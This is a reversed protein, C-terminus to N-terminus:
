DGALRKMTKDINESGGQAGLATIALTNAQERSRLRENIKLYANIQPLTLTM